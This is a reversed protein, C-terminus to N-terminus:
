VGRVGGTIELATERDWSIMRGDSDFGRTVLEILPLDAHRLAVFGGWGPGDFIGQALEYHWPQTKSRDTSFSISPVNLFPALYSFGGYTGVFATANSVVATQVALNNEPRMLHDVRVIEPPLEGQVDRHEDLAVPNGILVVNTTRALSRIVAAAFAASERSEPFSDRSYFRVAVYENPLVEALQGRAPASIPEYVSTLGHVIRDDRRKLSRPYALQNIKLFRFYSRYLLSPHLIASDCLGLHEAVAAIAKQEFEKMERQKDSLARHRAFEEAPLLSLVDVYTADLGGIWDHVGGRSVVVLRGRLAPFERVAWRLLPVWYLLEFGVEGTFPGAIVKGNTGALESIEARVREVEEDLSASRKRKPAKERVARIDNKSIAIGTRSAYPKQM